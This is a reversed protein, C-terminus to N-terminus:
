FPGNGDVDRREGSVIGGGEGGCSEDATVWLTTAVAGGLGARYVGGGKRKCLGGGEVGRWVLGM